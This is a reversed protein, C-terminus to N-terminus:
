PKIGLLPLSNKEKSQRSCSQPGGLRRNWHIGTAREGFIFCSPHSASCKGGDLASKLFAHLWVVVGGYM